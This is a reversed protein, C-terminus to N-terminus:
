IFFIKFMKLSCTAQFIVNVVSTFIDHVNVIFYKKNEFKPQYDFAPM